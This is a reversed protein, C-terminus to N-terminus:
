IIQCDLGVAEYGMLDPDINKLLNSNACMSVEKQSVTQM